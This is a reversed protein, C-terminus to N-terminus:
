SSQINIFMISTYINVYVAKLIYTLLYLYWFSYPRINMGNGPWRRLKSKGPYIRCPFHARYWVYETQTHRLWSFIALSAFLYIEIPIM